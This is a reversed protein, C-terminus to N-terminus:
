QYKPMAKLQQLAEHIKTQTDSDLENNKYIKELLGEEVLADKIWRKLFAYNNTVKTIEGTKPNRLSDTSPAPATKVKSTKAIPEILPPEGVVTEAKNVTKTTAPAAPEATSKSLDKKGTVEFVVYAVFITTAIFLLEAM